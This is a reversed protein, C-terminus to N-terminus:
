NRRSHKINTVEIDNCLFKYTEKQDNSARNTNKNPPDNQFLTNSNLMVLKTCKVTANTDRAQMVFTCV